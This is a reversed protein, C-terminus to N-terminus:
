IPHTTLTMGRGGKVRPFVRYGNYLLSPLGWPRDPFTRFIEGGDPNSGRVKWGTALRQVSQAIGAWLLLLSINTDNNDNDDNDDDDLSSLTPSLSLTDSLSSCTKNQRDGTSKKWNQRDLYCMKMTTSWTLVNYSTTSWTLVSYSTTSWTLVNYPTTSSTLVSYSKTSWTLM